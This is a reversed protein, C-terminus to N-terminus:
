GPHRRHHELGPPAPTARPPRGTGPRRSRTRHASGEAPGPHRKDETTLAAVRREGATLIEPQPQERHFTGFCVLSEIGPFAALFQDADGVSMVVTPRSLRDTPLLAYGQVMRPLVFSNTNLIGTTYFVNEQTTALLADLDAEALVTGARAVNLLM